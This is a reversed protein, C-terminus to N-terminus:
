PQKRWDKYRPRLSFTAHTAPQADTEHQYAVRLKETGRKLLSKVTNLKKGTIESIEELSKKELFRLSLVDQYSAPLAALLQKVRQFERHRALQEYWDSLEEELNIESAPEFGSVDYLAEISVVSRKSKRYYDKIENGAIKYLWASFSLGRWTFRPLNQWAKFFTTATIDLAAQPDDIRRLAYNSIKPYYYEFLVGFAEPDSRAREVLRQEEALDM